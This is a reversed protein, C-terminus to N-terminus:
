FADIQIRKVQTAPRVIARFLAGCIVGAIAGILLGTSTAGVVYAFAGSTTAFSNGWGVIGSFFLCTGGVLVAGWIGAWRYYPGAHTIGRHPLRGISLGIALWAAPITFYFIWWNLASIFVSFAAGSWFTQGDFADVGFDTFLGFLNSVLGLGVAVLAVCLSAAIGCLFCALGVRKLKPASITYDAATPATIVTGNPGFEAM